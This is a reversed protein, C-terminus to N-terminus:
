ARQPAGLCRAVEAERDFVQADEAVLVPVV